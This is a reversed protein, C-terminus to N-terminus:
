QQVVSEAMRFIDEEEVVEVDYEIVCSYEPSITWCLYARGDKLCLMAPWQSVTCEKEEEVKKWDIVASLTQRDLKGDEPKASEKYYTTKCCYYIIKNGSEDQYTQSAVATSTQKQWQDKSNGTEEHGCGVVTGLLM